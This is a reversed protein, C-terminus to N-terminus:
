QTFIEANFFLPSSLNFLFIISRRGKPGFSKGSSTPAKVIVSDKHKMHNIVEIQWEDLKKEKKEYINLPPLLHSLEKMMYLRYEYDDLKSHIKDFIKKYKEESNQEIDSGFFLNM